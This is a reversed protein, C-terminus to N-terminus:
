RSEKQPSPLSRGPPVAEIRVAKLWKPDPNLEVSGSPMGNLRLVYATVWVYEDETLSGPASKPMMSSLYDFLHALPQNFWKQEFAAGAHSATTHCGLCNAQFINRGKNAQAATYVGAATSTPAAQAEGRRTMAASSMILALLVLVSTRPRQLKAVFASLLWMVGTLIAGAIALRIMTLLLTQDFTPWMWPLARWETLRASTWHWAEHAVLASLTVILVRPSIRDALRMSIWRFLPIWLLLVLLQALELGVNFAALSVALHAGAFQLTDGLANSFGFGHILGFLFASRWRQEPSLGLVNALAMWVISLAIGTEVAAAFWASDPTVGFVAAALTISHAVTFATVIGILPRMAGVPLALCLLFALHDLGGLLHTVGERVFRGAAHWWRPDLRVTGPDGDWTYVRTAGQEPALMMVTTTRVGLHAWSPEVRLDQVPSSTPIELWTELRLQMPDISVSDALPQERIARMASAVDEFARDAPLAARVALVRPEPLLTAGDFLRVGSAVWLQAADRLHPPAKAVDLQGDPRRPWEIDRMADMPVQVLLMVRDTSPRVIARVGVHKPVEHALVVAPVVALVVALGVLAAFAASCARLVLSYRFSRVFHQVPLPIRTLVPPGSPRQFAGFKGGPEPITM